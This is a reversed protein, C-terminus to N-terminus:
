TGDRGKHRGEKRFHQPEAAAASLVQELDDILGTPRLESPPPFQSPLPETQKNTKTCRELWDKATVWGTVDACVCRRTQNDPRHTVQM